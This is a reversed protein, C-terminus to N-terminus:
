VHARTVKVVLSTKTVHSVIRLVPKFKLPLILPQQIQTRMLIKFPGILTSCSSVKRAAMTASGM